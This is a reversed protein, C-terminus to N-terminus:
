LRPFMERLEEEAMDGSVVTQRVHEKLVTQLRRKVTGLMNSAKVENDIGYQECLDALSPPDTKGLSPLLLRSQFVSWHADM